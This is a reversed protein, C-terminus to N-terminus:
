TNYCIYIMAFGIHTNKKLFIMKKEFDGNSPSKLALFVGLLGAARDDPEKMM